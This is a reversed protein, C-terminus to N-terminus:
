KTEDKQKNAKKSLWLYFRYLMSGEKYTEAVRQLYPKECNLM